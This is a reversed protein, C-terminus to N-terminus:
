TDTGNVVRTIKERVASLQRSLDAEQQKLSRLKDRRREGPTREDREMWPEHRM